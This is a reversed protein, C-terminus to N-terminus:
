FFGFFHGFPWVMKEPLCNKFLGFPLGPTSPSPPIFHSLLLSHHYSFEHFFGEKEVEVAFYSEVQSKTPFFTVQHQKMLFLIVVNIKM